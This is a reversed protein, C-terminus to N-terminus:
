KFRLYANMQGTHVTISRTEDRRKSTVTYTGDPLKVFCLPGDSTFSAVTKGGQSITIPLYALFRPRKGSTTLWIGLNYDHRHRQMAARGDFGIGGCLHPVSDAAQAGTSLVALTGLLALTSIPTRM